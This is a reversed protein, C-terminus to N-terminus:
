LALLIITGLVMALWQLAEFYANVTNAKKGQTAPAQTAAAWFDPRAAQRDAPTM